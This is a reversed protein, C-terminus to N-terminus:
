LCDEYKKLKVSKKKATNNLFNRCHNCDACFKNCKTVVNLFGPDLWKNEIHYLDSMWCTADMIELLNGSYSEEIYADVCVSLFRPGLTRGCLKITDAFLRYRGIDEPRIFPSKFFREPHNFFYPHCGFKRNTSFNFDRAEGTNTLSIHADHALKFPCHLICGENALLEIKISPYTQRITGAIKELRILDRNLSRDLTIKGPPQFGSQEILEFFVAAKDFTDIMCNIGPVAELGFIDNRGTSALATLLYADSFVFGTIGADTMLFSLRDALEELFLPDHCHDPRIFRANLLCYKKVPGLANLGDRIRNQGTKIFRMRADLVPGSHLTFYVSEIVTIRESLFRTYASDPIFPVSLKM